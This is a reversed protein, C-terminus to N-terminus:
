GDDKERLFKAVGEAIRRIGEDSFEPILTDRILSKELRLVIESNMSRNNARALAEIKDRMGDPLRLMFKDATRSPAAMAPM